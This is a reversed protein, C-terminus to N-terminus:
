KRKAIIILEGAGRIRGTFNIFFEYLRFNIRSLFLLKYQGLKFNKKNSVVRFGAENLLNNITRFNWAFLHYSELEPTLKVYQHREKPLVLILLGEKKLKRRLFNLETLPDKLHELVHVSLVVDAQPIQSKKNITKIGANRCFDLAFDSIDYGYAEFNRVLYLNQGLGCGYEIITKGKLNPIMSLYKNFAFKARALYYEKNQILFNHVQEHYKRRYEM